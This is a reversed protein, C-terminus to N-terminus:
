DNPLYLALRSGFFFLHDFGQAQTHAEGLESASLSQPIIGSPNLMFLQKYYSEKAAELDFAESM